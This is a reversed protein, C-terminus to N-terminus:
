DRDIILTKYPYIKNANYIAKKNSKNADYIKIWMKPNNYIEPLSAIEWLSQNPQIVYETLWEQELEVPITYSSGFLSGTKEKLIISFKLNKDEVLTRISIRLDGKKNPKVTISDLINLELLSQAEKNLSVDLKADKSGRNIIVIDRLQLEAKINGKTKISTPSVAIDGFCSIYIFALILSIIIKELKKM